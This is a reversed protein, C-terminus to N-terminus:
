GALRKRMQVSTVVYGLREYLSRAGLNPGFVNLSMSRAGRDRAIAEAATMIATGYGRRRHDPHVEVDYVFGRLGDLNIWILGVEATGDYAAYLFQDPTALGEPLLRAYDGAAKEVADDWAMAGSEAIQEAYGDEARERYRRYQEDTMPELRVDPM